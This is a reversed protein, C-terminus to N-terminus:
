NNVMFEYKKNPCETITNIDDGDLTGWIRCGCEYEIDWCHLSVGARFAISGCDKCKGVDDTNLRGM